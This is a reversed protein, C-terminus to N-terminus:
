SLDIINELVLKFCLTSKKKRKRKKKKKLIWYGRTEKVDGLIQKRRRRGRRGDSRDM